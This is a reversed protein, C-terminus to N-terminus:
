SGRAAPRRAAQERVRLLRDAAGGHQDHGRDQLRAPDQPRAPGRRRRAAEPLDADRRVRQATEALTLPTSALLEGQAAALRQHVGHGLEHALTMVDRQKGLYNLLVYPHVETVTPHAFAGPAKGPKVPADIWGKEFFPRAVRGYGDFGGYADLLTSTRRRGPSDQPGARAAPPRQPGPHRAQRARALAGEARLLPALAEPLGRGGRRAAGAGSRARCREGPAQGAQPTPLKRCRDEIEKEKALTNTVRAFLPLRAEFVAALAEAGAQRRARDHDSLLDLTAQGSRARAASPRPTRCGPWPRTSSATGPRPAPWRSTTCSASWSTRCSTAAADQPHPRAGAQLLGLKVDPGAAADLRADEVRNLELTFFVLPATIVTVETQRDGSSSPAAGPRAHMQYHRLGAYSMIRGSVPRSASGTASPPSCGRRTSAGRAGGRLGRRLAPLRRPSLRPRPRLEPADPAPYLDSM